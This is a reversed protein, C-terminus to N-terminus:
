GFHQVDEDCRGGARYTGARCALRDRPVFGTDNVFAAVVHRIALGAQQRNAARGPATVECVMPLGDIDAM